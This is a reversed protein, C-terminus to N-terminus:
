ATMLDLYSRQPLRNSSFFYHSLVHIECFPIVGEGEGVRSWFVFFCFFLLLLFFTRDLDIPVFM